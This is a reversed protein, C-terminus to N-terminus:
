ERAHDQPLLHQAIVAALQDANFPKTLVHPWPILRAEMGTIVVLPASCGDEHLYRAIVDAGGGPMNWDAFVLSPRRARAVARAESASRAVIAEHGSDEVISALVDTLDPDDDVILIRAM